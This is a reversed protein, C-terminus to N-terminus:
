GPIIEYPSDITGKGKFNVNAKLNIVPRLQMDYGSDQTSYYLGGSINGLMEEGETYPSMSYYAQYSNLYSSSGWSEVIMGSLLLEDASILGISKSLKKNAVNLTYDDKCTLQPKPNYIWESSWWGLEETEPVWVCIEEAWLLRVVPSVDKPSGECSKYAIIERDNCFDSDAIYSGYKSELNDTYWKEVVKKASDEAETTYDQYMKYKKMYFENEEMIGDITVNHNAGNEKAETGAYIMRITGDGNIRVIRWYMDAGKSARIQKECKKIISPLDPDELMSAESECEELTYYEYDWDGDLDLLYVAFEDQWKGFKVYNNTVDGRYYYSMGDNDLMSYLGYENDRTYTAFNPNTEYYYNNKQAHKLVEEKLTRKIYVIKGETNKGVSKGNEYVLSIEDIKGSQFTITGYGPKEGKVEVVIEKGDCELNGNTQIECTNPNFTGNMNAKMIAHEVGDMYMEASRLQASEKVDNIINLVIPTAILAIIALIVIVALLEILTFGKKM